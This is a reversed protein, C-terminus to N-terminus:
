AAGGDRSKVPAAATAVSAGHEVGVSQGVGEGRQEGVGDQADVAAARVLVEVARGDLPALMEVGVYHCVDLRGVWGTSDAIDALARETTLSLVGRCVVREVDAAPRHPRQPDLLGRLREAVHGMAGRIADSDSYAAVFRAHAIEREVAAALAVSTARISRHEADSQAILAEAQTAREALAALQARLTGADDAAPRAAASARLDRVTQEADALARELRAVDASAALYRAREGDAPTTEGARTLSVEVDAGLLGGRAIATAVVASSDYVALVGHGDRLCIACTGDGNDRLEAVRGRDIVHRASM